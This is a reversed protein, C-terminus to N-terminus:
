AHEGAGLFIRVIGVTRQLALQARDLRTSAKMSCNGGTPDTRSNTKPTSKRLHQPILYLPGAPACKLNQSSSFRPLAAGGEHSIVASPNLRVRSYNRTMSSGEYIRYWGRSKRKNRYGGTYKKLSVYSAMAVIASDAYMVTMLCVVDTWHIM